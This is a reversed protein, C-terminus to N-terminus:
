DLYKKFHWHGFFVSSYDLREEQPQLALMLKIRIKRTVVSHSCPLPSLKCNAVVVGRIFLEM